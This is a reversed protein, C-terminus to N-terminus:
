HPLIHSTVDDDGDFALRLHRDGGVFAATRWLEELNAYLKDRLPKPESWM